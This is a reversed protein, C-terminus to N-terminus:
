YNSIFVLDDIIPSLDKLNLTTKNKLLETIKSVKDKYDTLISKAENYAEIVLSLTENDMMIKTNESYKSGTSLSRGLFPNDGDNM